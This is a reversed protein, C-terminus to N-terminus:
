TVNEKSHFQSNTGIDAIYCRWLWELKEWNRLIGYVGKEGSVVTSKKIEYM